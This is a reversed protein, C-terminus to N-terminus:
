LNLEVEVSTMIVAKYGFVPELKNPNHRDRRYGTRAEIDKCAKPCSYEIKGKNSLAISSSILEIGYGEPVVIDIGLIINLYKVNNKFGKAPNRNVKIKLASFTGIDKEQLKKDKNKLAIKM